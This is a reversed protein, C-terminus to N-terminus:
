WGKQNPKVAGPKEPDTMKHIKNAKAKRPAPKPLDKSSKAGKTLLFEVMQPMNEKTATDLLTNGAEDFANVNAGRDLLIQAMPVNKNRVAIMLGTTGCDANGDPNAGHDLLYILMKLDGATAACNIFTGGQAHIKNILKTDKKILKAITKYDGSHVASFMQETLPQKASAKATSKPEGEKKQGTSSMVSNLAITAALLLVVLIILKYM